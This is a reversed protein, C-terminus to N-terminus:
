TEDEDRRGMKWVSVGFYGVYVVAILIAFCIKAEMLATDVGVLGGRSELIL